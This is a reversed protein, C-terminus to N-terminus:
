LTINFYILLVGKDLIMFYLELCQTYVTYNFLSIFKLSVLNVRTWM